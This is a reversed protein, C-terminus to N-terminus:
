LVLVILYLIYLSTLPFNVSVRSIFDSVLGRVSGADSSICLRVLSWVAHVVEYDDHWHTNKAGESPERQLSEGSLCKRHLSQLSYFVLM